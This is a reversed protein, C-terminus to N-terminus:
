NGSSVQDDSAALLYRIRYNLKEMTQQKYTQHVRYLQAIMKTRQYRGYLGMFLGLLTALSFSSLIILLIRKELKQELKKM